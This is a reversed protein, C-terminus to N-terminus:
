LVIIFSMIKFITKKKSQEKIPKTNIYLPYVFSYGMSGKSYVNTSKPIPPQRKAGKIARNIIPKSNKIPKSKIALIYILFNVTLSVATEKIM